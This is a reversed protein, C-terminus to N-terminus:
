TSTEGAERERGVGGGGESGYILGARPQTHSSCLPVSRLFRRSLGLVQAGREPDEGAKLGDVRFEDGPPGSLLLVTLPRLLYGM